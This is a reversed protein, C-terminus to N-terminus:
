LLHCCLLVSFVFTTFSLNLNCSVFSSFTLYKLISSLSIRFTDLKKGAVVVVVVVLRGVVVVVVSGVVGSYPYSPLVKQLFDLGYSSLTKGYKLRPIM